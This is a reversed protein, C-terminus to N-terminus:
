CFNNPLYERLDGKQQIKEIGVCTQRKIPMEILYITRYFRRNAKFFSDRTRRQPAYRLGNMVAGHAQSISEPM